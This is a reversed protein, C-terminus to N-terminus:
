GPFELLIKLNRVCQSGSNVLFFKPNRVFVKSKRVGFFKSGIKRSRWFDLKTRIEFGGFDIKGVWIQIKGGLIEIEGWFVQIKMNQTFFPNFNQFFDSGLFDVELRFIPSEYITARLARLPNQKNSQQKDQNQPIKSLNKPM